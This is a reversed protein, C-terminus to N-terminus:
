KGEFSFNNRAWEEAGEPSIFYHTKVDEDNYKMVILKIAQENYSGRSVILAQNRFGAKLARPYWDDIIWQRDAEAILKMERADAIVTSANYKEIAIIIEDLIKRFGEGQVYIGKWKTQVVRLSNNYFVDCEPSTFHLTIENMFYQCQSNLFFLILEFIGDAFFEEAL